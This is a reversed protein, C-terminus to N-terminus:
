SIDWGQKLKEQPRNPPQTPPCNSWNFNMSGWGLKPQASSTLQGLPRTPCSDSPCIYYEDRGYTTKMATQVLKWCQRCSEENSKSQQCAPSRQSFLREEGVPFCLPKHDPCFPKYKDSFQNETLAAWKKTFEKQIPDRFGQNYPTM